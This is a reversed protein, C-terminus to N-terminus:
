RKQLFNQELKLLEEVSYYNELAASEKIFDADKKVVAPHMELAKANLGELTLGKLSRVRSLAVYGQGYEFAQGLDIIASDLSMGQAKHVTM